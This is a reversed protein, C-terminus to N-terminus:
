TDDYVDTVIIDIEYPSAYPSVEDKDQLPLIKKLNLSNHSHNYYYLFGILVICVAGVSVTAGITIDNRKSIDSGSNSQIRSSFGASHSPSSSPRLITPPLSLLTPKSSPQSTPCNPKLSPQQSPSRSPQDSPKGKPQLSPQSSPGFRCQNSPFTSPNASPFSSPENIPVRTPQGTPQTPQSSPQM